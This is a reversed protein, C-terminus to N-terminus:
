LGARRGLEIFPWRAAEHRTEDAVHIHESPADGCALVVADTHLYGLSNEAGTSDTALLSHGTLGHRDGDTWFLNEQMGFGATVIGIIQRGGDLVHDVQARLCPIENPQTVIVDQGQAPLVDVLIPAKRRACPHEGTEGRMAGLDQWLSSRLSSDAQSLSTGLGQDHLRGYVSAAARAWRSTAQRTRM